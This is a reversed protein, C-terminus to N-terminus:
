GGIMYMEAKPRSYNKAVLFKREQSYCNNRNIWVDKLREAIDKKNGGRIVDKINSGQSSFLCAYLKGDSSLRLRDCADCFPDSVAAILGIEGKGDQFAYRMATEGPHQQPLPALPYRGHILTLIEQAYMVQDLSWGNCNGTDMYEIFRLIHQTGRFHEVLDLITSDNVGKQIVTNIKISAFGAEQATKIGNLIEHLKARYGNMRRFIEHDLSNLSITIRHLGASRLRQAFPGLFFGNTTLALDKIEEIENLARILECLDKRLLPEGGTLRVKTVGLTVAAQVVRIIEATSLYHGSGGRSLSGAIEECPMCYPCRFNCQDTVSVRLTRLARGSQDCTIATNESLSALPM